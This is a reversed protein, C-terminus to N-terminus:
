HLPAVWPGILPMQDGRSKSGRNWGPEIHPRCNFFARRDTLGTEACYDRIRVLMSRSCEGPPLENWLEEIRQNRNRPPITNEPNLDDKSEYELPIM